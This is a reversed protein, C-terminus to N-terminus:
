MMVWAVLYHYAWAYQSWCTQLRELREAQRILWQPANCLSREAALQDLLFIWFHCLWVPKNVQKLMTQLVGAGMAVVPDRRKYLQPVGPWQCLAQSWLPHCFFSKWYNQFWANCTASESPIGRSNFWYQFIRYGNQHHLVTHCYMFIKLLFYHWCIGYCTETYMYHNVGTRTEM